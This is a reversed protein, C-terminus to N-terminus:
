SSEEAEYKSPCKAFLTRAEFRDEQAVIGTSGTSGKPILAGELVVDAEEKFTDPIVGKYHVRVVTNPNDPDAAKFQLTMEKDNRQITGPVVKGTLRIEQSYIEAGRDYMEQVTLYYMSTSMFSSFGLYGIAGVVVLAAVVFKMQKFSSRRKAPITKTAETVSM